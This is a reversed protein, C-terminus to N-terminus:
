VLDTTPRNGVTKEYTVPAVIRWADIGVMKPDPGGVVVADIGRDLPATVLTDLFVTVSVGGVGRDKPNGLVTAQTALM